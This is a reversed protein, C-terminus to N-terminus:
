RQPRWRNARKLQVDVGSLRFRMDLMQKSVVYCGMAKDESLGDRRIRLLADRPLLLCGALWDAEAEQKRDFTRLMLLGDPSIDVRGASHGLVIHALEHM